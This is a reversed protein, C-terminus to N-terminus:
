VPKRATVLVASPFCGVGENTVEAMAEQAEKQFEYMEHAREPARQLATAFIPEMGLLEGDAFARGLSLKKAPRHTSLVNLGASSLVDGLERPWEPCAWGVMKWLKEVARPLASPTYAPDPSLFETDSIAFELWEIHGGPEPALLYSDIM